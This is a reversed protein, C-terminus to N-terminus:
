GSSRAARKKGHLIRNIAEISFREPDYDKGVWEGGRHNCPPTKAVPIFFFSLPGTDSVPESHSVQRCDISCACRWARTKLDATIRGYKKRKSPDTRYNWRPCIVPLNRRGPDVIKSAAQPNAAASIRNAVSFM